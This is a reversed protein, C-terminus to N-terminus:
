TVEDVVVWPITCSSIMYVSVRGWKAKLCGGKFKILSNLNKSCSSGTSRTRGKCYNNRQKLRWLKLKNPRVTSQDPEFVQTLCCLRHCANSRPCCCPEACNINTTNLVDHTSLQKLQPWGKAVRHVTAQCVGRDLLNELFSYQLPNGYWEGPCRGLGPILGTDTINGANAPLNKVVLAVQSTWKLCLPSLFNSSLHNQFIFLYQWQSCIKPM